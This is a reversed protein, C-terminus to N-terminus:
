PSQQDMMSDIVPIRQQELADFHQTRLQHIQAEKDANSMGATNLIEQRQTRYAAIRAQWQSQHQDAVAFRQATEAGYVAERMRFIEADSAGAARADAIRTNLNKIDREEQKATREQTPLEAEIAALAADQAEPSMSTDTLIDRAKLNYDERKDDTGFFAQYTESDLQSARLERMLRLREALDPERGSAKYDDAWQNNLEIEQQKLAIYQEFLALAQERAPSPLHMKLLERIRGYITEYPEEGETKLFYDFLNRLAATVTLRGQEDVQFYFPIQTGRLSNPLPGYSSQYNDYSLQPPAWGKVYAPKGAANPSLDTETPLPVAKQTATPQTAAQQPSRWLLRYAGLVVVLLVFGGFLLRKTM